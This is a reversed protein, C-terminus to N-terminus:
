LEEKPKAPKAKSGRRKRKKKREPPAPEGGARVVTSRSAAAASGGPSHMGLPLMGKQYASFHASMM